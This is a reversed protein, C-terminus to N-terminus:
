KGFKLAAYIACGLANDCSFEPKAFYANYKKKFYKSIKSNSMVGGVFVVPMDGYASIANNLMAEITRLIYEISFLAVDCPKAGDIIMKSAKNEVGSLSCNLGKVSPRIKFEADSELSLRDLESGCPFKLGLMVGTRDIVQGAHLDLSTGIKEINIIKEDDPTVVLADTTGGSVHFALFRQNILELKEASYLASLIHGTQHTTEFCPIGLACSISYANSKGVMFCPMYSGEFSCPKTSVGVAEIGNFLDMSATFLEPLNVTHQFVANSQRLGREGENVKLLRKNNVLCNLGSDCAAISTTYNSTDIGLFM